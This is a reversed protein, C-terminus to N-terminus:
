GSIAEDRQAKCRASRAIVLYPSGERCFSGRVRVREGQVRVGERERKRSLAM